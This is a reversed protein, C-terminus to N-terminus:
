EIGGNARIEQARDLLARTKATYGQEWQPSGVVSPGGAYIMLAKDWSGYQQFAEALLIIGYEINDMPVTAPELGYWERAAAFNCANIQMYGYDNTDSAADPTFRSEREILALALEEPVGMEICCYELHALHELQMPASLDITEVREVKREVLIEAEPEAAEQANGCVLAASLIITLVTHHM